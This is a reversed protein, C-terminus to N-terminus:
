LHYILGNPSFNIPFKLIFLIIYCCTFGCIFRIRLIENLLVLVVLYQLGQLAIWYYTHLVLLSTNKGLELLVVDRTTVVLKCFAPLLFSCTLRCYLSTILLTWFTLFWIPCLRNPKQPTKKNNNTQKKFLHFSLFSSCTLSAVTSYFLSLLYMLGLHAKNTDQNM